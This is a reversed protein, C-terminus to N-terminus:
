SLPRIEKTHRQGRQNQKSINGVGNQYLYAYDENGRQEQIAFNDEGVQSIYANQVVGRQFQVGKNGVGDQETLAFHEEGAQDVKANNEDQGYAIFGILFFVGVLLTKKMINYKLSVFFWQAFNVKEVSVINCSFIAM